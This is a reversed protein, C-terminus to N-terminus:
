VISDVIPYLVLNFQPILHAVFCCEFSNSLWKCPSLICDQRAVYMYQGPLGRGGLVKLKRWMEVKNELKKLDFEVLLVTVKVRVKVWV